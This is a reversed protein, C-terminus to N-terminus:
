PVLGAKRAARVEPSSDDAPENEPLWMKVLNISTNQQRVDAEVRQPLLIKLLENRYKMALAPNETDAKLISREQRRILEDTLNQATLGHRMKYITDLCIKIQHNEQLAIRTEHASFGLAWYEVVKEIVTKPYM